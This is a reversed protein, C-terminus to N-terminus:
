RFWKKKVFCYIEVAVIAICLLSTLQYGYRSQLEPMHVFNMGFWGTILTLPMFLTTVITLFKMIENQRLDIQTQHMERLQLSYEKLMQVMERMRETNENLLGFLLHDRSADREAANRELVAAMGTLQDYYMGLRSLSKRISFIKKDLNADTGKQIAEELKELKKNFEHLFTLDDKTLYDIFDYLMLYPSTVDAMDLQAAQMEDLLTKATGQDDIFILKGNTICYGFSLKEETLKKKQPIAFSGALAANLQQAGCFRLPRGDAFCRRYIRQYGAAFETMTLLEIPCCVPLEGGHQEAEEPAVKWHYEM